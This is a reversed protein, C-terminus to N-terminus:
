EAAPASPVPTAPAPSTAAATAMLLESQKAIWELHSAVNTYIGVGICSDHGAGRSDTGVLTYKGDRERVFAPGGSDGKCSGKTAEDLKLEKGDASKELIKIGSVQRLIGTTDATASDAAETKGFGAQVLKAGAPTLNDGKPLRAVKFDAPAPSDLKLLAVDSWSAAGFMANELFDPHITAKVGLRTQEKKIEVNIDNSFVAVVHKIPSRSGDLCHGATLVLQPAILTGTCIGQGEETIIILAVIGNDKQFRVSSAKGGVINGALASNGVTPSGNQACSSLLVLSSAVVTANLMIKLMTKM